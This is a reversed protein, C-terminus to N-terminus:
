AGGGGRGAPRRRGKGAEREAAEAAAQLELAIERAEDPTFDMPVEVTGAAVHIRVMGLSTPAIRLDAAVDSERDIGM